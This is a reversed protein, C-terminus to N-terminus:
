KDGNTLVSHKPSRRIRRRRGSGSLREVYNSWSSDSIEPALGLEYDFGRRQIRIKSRRSLADIAQFIRNWTMQPLLTVLHEMTMSPQTKLTNLILRENLGNFDPM